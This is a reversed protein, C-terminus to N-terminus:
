VGVREFTLVEFRIKLHYDYADPPGGAQITSAHLSESLVGRVVSEIGDTLGSFRLNLLAREIRSRFASAVKRSADNDEQTGELLCRGRLTFRRRWTIGGGIEIEEVIDDWSESKSGIGSTGMEQDPDNAYLEVSIRAEDPDPDGQLPGIKVVGARTPDDTPLSDFCVSQLEDRVRELIADHIV